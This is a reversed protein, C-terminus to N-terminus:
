RRGRPGRGSSAQVTLTRQRGVCPRYLFEYRFEGLEGGDPRPARLADGEVDDPTLLLVGYPESLRQLLDLLLDFRALAAEVQGLGLLTLDAAVGAPVPRHDAHDFIGVVDAGYFPGVLVAAEVVDEAAGERGQVPDFGFVQPYGLEQLTDTVFAGFLEDDRGVRVRSALRSREEDRLLHLVQRDPDRGERAAQRNAPIQLVGVFHGQSPGEGSPALKLATQLVEDQLGRQDAKLM